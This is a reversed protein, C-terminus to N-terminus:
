QDMLRLFDEPIPAGTRCPLTGDYHLSILWHCAAHFPAAAGPLSQGERLAPESSINLQHRDPPGPLAPDPPM